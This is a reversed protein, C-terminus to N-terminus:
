TAGLERSVNGLVTELEVRLWAVDLDEQSQLDKEFGLNGTVSFPSDNFYKWIIPCDTMAIHKLLRSDRHEIKVGCHNVLISTGGPNRQM